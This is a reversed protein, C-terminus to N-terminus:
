NSSPVETNGNLYTKLLTFDTFNGSFLDKNENYIKTFMKTYPAIYYYGGLAIGLLVIWYVFRSVRNWKQGNRLKRLMLNNEKALELNEELLKRLQQEMEM